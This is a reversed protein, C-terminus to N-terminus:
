DKICRISNGRVNEEYVSFIREEYNYLYWSWSPVADGERICWFSGIQASGFFNGQENRYGGPLASFGSSNDAKNPDAWHSIGSEKLKKGAADLGGLYTVLTEWESYSPIHWGAPCIGHSDTAAFWNYLRGYTEPAAPNNNYECFAPSTANRWTSSETVLPIATGDRFKTTKLNEAMWVQTGITITHYTNGDIDTVLLGSDENKRCSITLIAILATLVIGPILIRTKM